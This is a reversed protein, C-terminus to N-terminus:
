KNCLHINHFQSCRQCQRLYRCNTFSHDLNLCIYCANIKTIIETKLTPNLKNFVPCALPHFKEFDQPSSHVSQNCIFCLDALKCEQMREAIKSFANYTTEQHDIRSDYAEKCRSIFYIFSSAASNRVDYTSEYLFLQYKFQHSQDLKLVMEDVLNHDFFLHRTDVKLEEYCRLIISINNMTEIENNANLLLKLRSAFYVEKEEQM